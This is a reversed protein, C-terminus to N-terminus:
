RMKDEWGTRIKRAQARLVSVESKERAKKRRGCFVLLIRDENLARSRLARRSGDACACYLIFSSSSLSRSENTSRSSLHRMSSGEFRMVGLSASM